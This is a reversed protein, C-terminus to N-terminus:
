RQIVLKRVVKQQGNSVEVFYVGQPQESLDINALRSSVNRLDANLVMQGIPNIVRVSIKEEERRFSLLLNFEGSGPNPMLTVSGDNLGENEVIGTIASCSIQPVIALHIKAGRNYRFTKWSGFLNRFYSSSDSSNNLKQDSYFVITDLTNSSIELATFFGAQPSTIVVPKPFDFRYVIMKRGPKTYGPKGLFDVTLTKPASMINGMTEAKTGMFGAPPTGPGGSSAYVRAQVTSTPFAKTATSDFIVFVSNVQPYTINSYTAPPYYQAFEKDQYCNSGTLYGTTSATGCGSVQGSSPARYIELSDVKKMSKLTDLCINEPTCSFQVSVLVSHTSSTISNSAALTIVYNGSSPFQIFPHSSNPNPFFNVPPNSSWQYTPYPYGISYNNVMVNGNVCPSSTLSFQAVPTTATLPAGHSCLDHTGLALRQPSQNLATWMRISQGHTFMYKCADETEDMFNMYMNGNPSLSVGCIDPATPSNPCGSTPGKQVPTDTVYDSLCNGDGWIHRLGFYHGLQHTTTRGKDRPAQASGLTGFAHAYVWIGDNLQTGVNGGFIGIQGSAPPYTGFSTLTSAPPRDSVWINLYKAPDWISAPMIVTNFYTYLDLTPTSLSQWNNAASSIRNIGQEVMATGTYDISARCFQIGTNALSGAFYSPVLNANDGIGAFDRNMAAIQSIVENSDLNPYTGVTETYSIVHVIVPIIRTVTSTKGQTMKKVQEEVAQNFWKDWAEPPAGTACNQQASLQTLFLM